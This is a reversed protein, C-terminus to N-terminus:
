IKQLLIKSNIQGSQEQHFHQYTSPYGDKGSFILTLKCQDGNKDYNVETYSSPEVNSQSSGLWIHNQTLAEFDTIDDSRSTLPQSNLISEGECLLTKLLEEPITRGNTISELSYKISKIHSKWSGGMWPCLPPNFIWKIDKMTQFNEVKTQDLISLREKLETAAGVLNRSNDSKM